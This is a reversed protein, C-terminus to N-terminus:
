DKIFIHVACTTRCTKSTFGADTTGNECSTGHEHDDGHPVQICSVPPTADVFNDGAENPCKHWLQWAPMPDIGERNPQNFARQSEEQVMQKSLDKWSSQSSNLICLHPDTTICDASGRIIELIWFLFSLYILNM